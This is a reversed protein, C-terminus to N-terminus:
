SIAVRTREDEVRGRLTGAREIFLALDDVPGIISRRLPLYGEAVVSVGVAVRPTIGSFQFRGKKDSMVSRAQYEDGVLSVQAGAVTTGSSNRVVGSISIGPDLVLSW